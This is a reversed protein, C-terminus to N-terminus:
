MTPDIERRVKHTLLANDTTGAAKKIHMCGNSGRELTHKNRNRKGAINPARRPRSFMRMESRGDKRRASVVVTTIIEAHLLWAKHSRLQIKIERAQYRTAIANGQV